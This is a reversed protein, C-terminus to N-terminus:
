LIVRKWGDLLVRILVWGFFGDYGAGNAPTPQIAVATAGAVFLSFNAHM